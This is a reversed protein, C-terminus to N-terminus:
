PISKRENKDWGEMNGNLIATFFRQKVGPNDLNLQRLLQKVYERKTHGDYPCPNLVIPLPYRNQFGIVDAEPIYLLPRIVTLKTNELYTVPAFTHFRGEYILSLLMTEIIDDMHHAYAIKNCGLKLIENNLAGKRLRACLSCRSNKQENDVYENIQTHVIHYEINLTKCLKKIEDYNSNNYGLDVTVAILSFQKPYFKRLGALAYLLTLSDKGGSIGIAICDNEDIMHYDNIAKRTYSYLRQLKM